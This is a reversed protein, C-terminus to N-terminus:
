AEDIYEASSCLDDVYLYANLTRLQKPKNIEYKQLSNEM